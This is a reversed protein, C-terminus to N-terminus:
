RGGRGNLLAGTIDPANDQYLGTLNQKLKAYGKTNQKLEKLAQNIEVTVRRSHRHLTTYLNPSYEKLGKELKAIEKQRKQKLEESVTDFQEDTKYYDKKREVYEDFVKEFTEHIGSVPKDSIISEIVSQSVSDRSSTLYDFVDVVNNKKLVDVLDLLSCGHIELDHEISFSHGKNGSDGRIGNERAVEAIKGSVSDEHAFVYHSGMEELAKKVVANRLINNLMEFRKEEFVGRMFAKKDKSQNYLKIFREDYGLASEVAYEPIDGSLYKEYDDRASPNLSLIAEVEEDTYNDSKYTICHDKIEFLKDCNPDPKVLYASEPLVLGTDPNPIFYTDEAAVEQPNGNKEVVEKYPALVVISAGDWNGGINNGVIQNLTVHITGRPLRYGTAMGTTEIYLEDKPNRKPEYKTLHVCVWNAMDTMYGVGWDRESYRRASRLYDLQEQLNEM